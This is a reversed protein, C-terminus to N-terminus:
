PVSPSPVVSLLEDIEVGEPASVPIVSINVESLFVQTRLLLLRYQAPLFLSPCIPNVGVVFPGTM